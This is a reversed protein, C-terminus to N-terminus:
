PYQVKPILVIHIYGFKKYIVGENLAELIMATVDPGVIDWYKQYLIGPMGDPGPSKMGVMDALAKRVEEPTYPRSLNSSMDVMMGAVMGELVDEIPVRNSLAMFLNQYYTVVIEQVKNADGQWVGDSDM